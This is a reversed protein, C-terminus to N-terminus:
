DEDECPRGSENFKELLDNREDIDIKIERKM